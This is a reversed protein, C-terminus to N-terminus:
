IQKRELECTRSTNASAQDNVECIKSDQEHKITNLKDNWHDVMQKFTQKLKKRGSQM